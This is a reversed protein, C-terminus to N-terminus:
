IEIFFLIFYFKFFFCRFFMARGRLFDISLFSTSESHAKYGTDIQLGNAFIAWLQQVM